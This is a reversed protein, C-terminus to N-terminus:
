RSSPMGIGRRVTSAAHVYTTAIALSDARYAFGHCSVMSDPGEFPAHM